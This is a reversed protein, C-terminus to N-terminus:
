MKMDCFNYGNEALTRCLMKQGRGFIERHMSCNQDFIKKPLDISFLRYHKNLEYDTVLLLSNAYGHPPETRRGRTVGGGGM